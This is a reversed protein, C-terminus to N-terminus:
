VPYVLPFFNHAWKIGFFIAYLTSDSDLSNSQKLFTAVAVRM